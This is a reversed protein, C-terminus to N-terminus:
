NKIYLKYRANGLSFLFVDSNYQLIQVSDSLGAEQLEEFEKRSYHLKGGRPHEAVWTKIVEQINLKPKEQQKPAVPKVTPKEDKM